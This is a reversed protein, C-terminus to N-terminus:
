KADDKGGEMGLLHVLRRRMQMATTTDGYGMFFGENIWLGGPHGKNIGMVEVKPRPIMDSKVALRRAAEQALQHFTYCTFSGRTKATYPNIGPKVDSFEYMERGDKAISIWHTLEEDSMESLKM